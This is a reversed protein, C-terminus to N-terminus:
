GLLFITSVQLCTFCTGDKDLFLSQVTLRDNAIITFLTAVSIAGYASAFGAVRGGLYFRERVTRSIVLASVTAATVQSGFGAFFLCREGFRPWHWVTRYIDTTGIGTHIHMPELKQENEDTKVWLSPKKVEHWISPVENLKEMSGSKKISIQGIQHISIFNEPDIKSKFLAQFALFYFVAFIFDSLFANVSFQNELFQLGTNCYNVPFDSGIISIFFQM